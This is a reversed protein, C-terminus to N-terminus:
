NYQIGGDQTLKIIVKYEDRESAVARQESDTEESNSLDIQQMQKKCKRKSSNSEVTIWVENRGRGSEGVGDRKRNPWKRRSDGAWEKERRVLTVM